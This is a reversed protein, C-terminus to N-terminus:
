LKGASIYAEIVPLLVSVTLFSLAAVFGLVYNQWKELKSVRGNTKKTQEEIRILITNQDSFMQRIERNQYPSEDM